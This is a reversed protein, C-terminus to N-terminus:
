DILKERLVAKMKDLLKPTTHNVNIFELFVKIKRTEARVWNKNQLSNNLSRTNTVM